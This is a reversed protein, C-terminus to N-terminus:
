KGESVKKKKAEQAKDHWKELFKYADGSTKGTFIKGLYKRVDAIYEQQKKSVPKDGDSFKLTKTGKLTTKKEKSPEEDRKNKEDFEKIPAIKAKVDGGLFYQYVICFKAETETDLGEIREAEDGNKLVIRAGHKGDGVPFTLLDGIDDDEFLQEVLFQCHKNNKLPKFTIFAKYDLRGLGFDLKVLRKGSVMVPFFDKYLEKTPGKVKWELLSIIEQYLAVEEKCFVNNPNSM